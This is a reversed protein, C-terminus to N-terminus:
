PPGFVQLPTRFQWDTAWVTSGKEILAKITDCHGRMAAYHLPTFDGHSTTNVDAGCEILKLLTQSDFRLDSIDVNGFSWLFMLRM